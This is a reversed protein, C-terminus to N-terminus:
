WTKSDACTWLFDKRTNQLDVNFKLLGLMEWFSEHNM